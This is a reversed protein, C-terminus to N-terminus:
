KRKRFEIASFSGAQFPVTAYHAPVHERMLRAITPEPLTSLLQFARETFLVAYGADLQRNVLEDFRAVFGDYGLAVLQGLWFLPASAMSPLDRLLPEYEAQDACLVFLRQQQSAAALDAILRPNEHPHDHEFVAYVSLASGFVLASVQLARPALALLLLAAPWALPLHYAGREVLKGFLLIVTMALFALAASWFAWACRRTARAFVAIIPVVSLPLFPWLWERWLDGVINWGLPLQAICQLVFGLMGEHRVDVTDRRLWADLCLSCAAHALLFTAALRLWRAGPRARLGVTLMPLLVVLLHGTAHVAAALATCAGVMCAGVVSPRVHTRAWQWCALGFFAYFVAHIEAVTAFFVVAPTTAALAAAMAADARRMGLAAGARHLGFVALAGGLCSALLLTQHPTWGFGRLGRHLADMLPMFLYHIHHNAKGIQLWNIFDPVDLGHLARQRLLWFTVLAALALLLGDTWPAPREADFRLRGLAPVPDHTM